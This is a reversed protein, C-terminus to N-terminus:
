VMMWDSNLSIDCRWFIVNQLFFFCSGGAGWNQTQCAFKRWFAQAFEEAGLGGHSTPEPMGHAGNPSRWRSRHSFCWSWLRIRWRPRTKSPFIIDEPWFLDGWVGTICLSDFSVYICYLHLINTYIWPFKPTYIQTSKYTNTKEGVIYDLKHGNEVFSDGTLFDVMWSITKTFCWPVLPKSRPWETLLVFWM